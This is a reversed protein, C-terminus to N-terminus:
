NQEPRISKLAFPQSPSTFMGKSMMITMMEDRIEQLSKHNAGSVSTPRSGFTLSNRRSGSPTNYASGTASATKSIIKTSSM